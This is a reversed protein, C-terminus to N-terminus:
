LGLEAMLDGLKPATKAAEKAREAQIDRVMKVVHPNKRIVALQEDDAKDVKAQAEELEIKLVRAIAQVLDSTSSGARSSWLGNRLNTLVDQVAGYAGVFDRTKSFGSAADGGKQSLGHIALQEVMEEPVDALSLELRTGNGFVYQVTRPKGGVDGPLLKSLFKTNVEAM